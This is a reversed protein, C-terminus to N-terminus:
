IVIIYMFFCFNLANSMTSDRLLSIHDTGYTAQTSMTACTEKLGHYTNKSKSTGVRFSLINNINQWGVSGFYEKSQGYLLFNLQRQRVM